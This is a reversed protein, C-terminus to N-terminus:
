KYESWDIAQGCRYCFDVIGGSWELGCNPCKWAECYKIISEYTKIPKRPARMELADIALTLSNYASNTWGGEDRIGELVRIAEKYPM